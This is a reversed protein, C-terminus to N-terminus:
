ATVEQLTNAVGTLSPIPANQQSTETLGLAQTLQQFVGGGVGSSNGRKLVLVILILVIFLNAVPRAKPIYGISGLVVLALVWYMFNGPGSFDARLLQVFETQRNRIAVTILLIGAFLLAFPM